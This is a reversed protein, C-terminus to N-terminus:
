QQPFHRLFSPPSWLRDAQVPISGRDDLGHRLRGLEYFINENGPLVLRFNSLGLYMSSLQDANKIVFLVSV